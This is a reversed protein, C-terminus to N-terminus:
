VWSQLLLAAFLLIIGSSGPVLLLGAPASNTCTSSERFLGMKVSNKVTALRAQTVQGSVLFDVRQCQGEAAPAPSRPLLTVRPMAVELVESVRKRFDYRSFNDVNPFTQEAFPSEPIIDACALIDQGDKLLLSRYVVTHDGTLQLVPDTYLQREKLSLLGHRGNMEGVVCSLPTDQSCSSSMSTMNFPNYSNGLNECEVKGNNTSIRQEMIFWSANQSSSSRLDTEVTLDGNTGDPFTLQSLMVTGSINASFVAKAFVWHRDTTNEAGIDACQMRSGNRYHIVLSRGLISHPGSLPMDSDVYLANLENLGTLSGFKGSIDGIEYEDTTGVGPGPSTSINVSLPNHHGRINADSCPNAAGSKIPLVHVHYGGALAGLGALSVNVTTPGRSFAQSFRVGGAAAGPGFWTATSGHVPHVLTINACAIRPGGRDARHVVLSRGLMSGAGQLWSTTDTLFRKGEAGGVRPGLGLAGHKSAFDGAECSLPSSPGCHLAYSSDTVNVGFPNWHGETTDCGRPDDDRESSIPRAHVHWNHNATAVASPRGYALDVFISVDSLPESELQTFYAKGVVPSQFTAVARVVPGPYGIPACAYRAGGPQHIVVSRGVISNRGFLPLNFDTFVGDTANRGELSMHRTSLDGAEYRDHTSGPGQPYSPASTNLGFPNWHGGVNDDSCASQPPAGLPPPPFMHVHYHAVSAKLGALNVRLETADFPSPQRFSLYGRVGRMNVRASVAKQQLAYIQACAYGPGRKHLLFSPAGGLTALDLRSKAPQLPTGVKLVGLETPAPTDLSGLLATCDAATSASGYLTMNTQSANVLGVTLLDSLFRVGTFGPNVRIYVNGSVSGTFRAQFTMNADGRSVVACVKVGACTELTLSLDDLNSRQEFLKSVNVTSDSASPATFSFIKPGINAQSCPEAFHGYMVPFESLSLNLIDCSGAGTVNVNANQLGSDFWVRGTVGGMNLHASFQVCSSTGLVAWLLVCSRLGM